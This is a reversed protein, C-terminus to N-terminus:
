LRCSLFLLALVRSICVFISQIELWDSVSHAGQRECKSRWLHSSVGARLVAISYMSLRNGLWDYCKFPVNKNYIM